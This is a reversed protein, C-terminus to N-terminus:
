DRRKHYVCSCGQSESLGMKKRDSQESDARIGKNKKWVARGLKLAKWLRDWGVSEGTGWQGASPDGGRQISHNKRHLISDGDRWRAM